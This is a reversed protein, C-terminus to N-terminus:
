TKQFDHGTIKFYSFICLLRNHQIRADKNTHAKERLEGLFNLIESEGNSKKYFEINFM